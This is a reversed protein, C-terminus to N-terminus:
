AFTHLSPVPESALNIGLTQLSELLHKEYGSQLATYGVELPGSYFETSMTTHAMYSTGDLGHEGVDFRM